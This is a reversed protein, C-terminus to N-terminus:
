KRKHIAQGTAQERTSVVAELLDVLEAHGKERALCLASKGGQSRAYVDAAHCLLAAATARHGQEVAIMLATHGGARANPSAGSQLLELAVPMNDSLAACCLTRDLRRQGGCVLYVTRWLTKKQKTEM